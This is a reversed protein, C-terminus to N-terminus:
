SVGKGSLIKIRDGIIEQTRRAFDLLDERKDHSRPQQAKVGSIYFAAHDMLILLENLSAGEAEKRLNQMTPKM